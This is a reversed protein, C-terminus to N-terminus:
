LNILFQMTDVGDAYDNLAPCQSEGFKFIPSDINLKMNSVVCQVNDKIQTITQELEEVSEYREYYVVSLPAQLDKSEKLMVYGTDLHEERNVLYISKYYNYNNFYKHHDIVYEYAQLQDLLKTIDYDKPFYIKSVNRCGQGYYSFIDFGLGQVDEFSEEGNLVAISNRNRRIIKPINKFYQEFHQATNNSGTAIVADVDNLREAYVIQKEVSPLEKTLYELIKPILVNDQSSLKIYAIHGSLLVTLVDHFGVMPINGALVLGIKKSEVEKIDYTSIWKEVQERKLSESWANLARRIETHTYWSNANKASDIWSNIEDSEVSLFYSLKDLANILEKNM